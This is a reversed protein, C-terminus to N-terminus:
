FWGFPQTGEPSVFRSQAFVESLHRGCNRPAPRLFSVKHVELTNIEREYWLLDGFDSFCVSMDKFHVHYTKKRIENSLCSVRPDEKKSKGIDCVFTEWIPSVGGLGLSSKVYAM